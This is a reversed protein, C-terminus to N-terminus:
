LILGGYSDMGPQYNPGSRTLFVDYGFGQRRRRELEVSIRGSNVATLNGQRIVQRELTQAWKVSLYDKGVLRFLGDIGYTVNYSGEM